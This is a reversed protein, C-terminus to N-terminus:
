PGLVQNAQIKANGIFMNIVGYGPQSLELIMEMSGIILGEAINVCARAEAEGSPIPINRGEDLDKLSSLFVPPLTVGYDTVTPLYPTIDFHSLCRQGMTEELKEQQRIAPEWEPPMDSKSGGFALLGSIMTGNSVNFQGLLIGSAMAVCQLTEPNNRKGEPLVITGTMMFNDITSAAIPDPNLTDVGLMNFIEIDFHPKCAKVREEREIKGWNPAQALLTSSTTIFLATLFMKTMASRRSLTQTKSEAFIMNTEIISLCASTAM